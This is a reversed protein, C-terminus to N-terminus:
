MVKILKMLILVGAHTGTFHAWSYGNSCLSWLLLTLTEMLRLTSLHCFLSTPLFLLSSTKVLPSDSRQQHRQETACEGNAIVNSTAVHLACASIGKMICSTQPNSFFFYMICSPFPTPTYPTISPYSFSPHFSPPSTHVTHQIQETCLPLLLRLFYFLFTTARTILVTKLLTLLYTSITSQGWNSRSTTTCVCVYVCQVHLHLSVCVWSCLCVCVCVCFALSIEMTEREAIMRTEGNQRVIYLWHCDIYWDAILIWSAPPCARGQDAESEQQLQSGQGGARVM